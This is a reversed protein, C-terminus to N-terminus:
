LGLQGLVRRLEELNVPKTLQFHFGAEKSRQLDEPRAYGTLSILFTDKLTNDARIVRAVQYGDMGPLGIDCLVVDPRYEKAMKVGKIGDKAVAVEHGDELLLLKMIEAVDDIDEILLVQLKQCQSKSSIEDEKVPFLKASLPLYVSFASGEGLGKSYAEVKGGHLEALGKVLALGLGLGGQSRDLSEDAQMFPKFLSKIMKPRMGIGNDQVRIVAMDKLNDLSLAVRCCGGAKTFKLSNHLLNGLVQSLRVPDAEVYLDMFAPLVELEIGKEHYMEQYDSATRYVLGNLEVPELKLTILNRTIRTVDLLDGVLRSLQDVQRAMIERAQKAKNRDHVTRELLSLGLTISALPNRIEHSLAGLFEDKRLAAERLEENANSLAEEAQRREILDAAQRALVDLSRIESDTLERPQRWHTTIMGLLKGNRSLLPTAQVAHISSQLYMKQDESGAMFICKEVNPVVVRQRTKLARGSASQSLPSVWEWYKAMSDNIGHHRLLYLEGEKGRSPEYMQINAFDSKLIKVATFIIKDYLDEVNDAQIMQTSLEQLLEAAKLEMALQRESEQLAQETQKFRTIDQLAVVAGTITQLADRIPAGSCVITGKSGDFKEIDVVIGKTKRGHLIAQAAPWDKEQLRKGTKPWYGKYKIYDSIGELSAQGAWIRRTEENSLVVKGQDDLVHFGVPITDLITQLRNSEEEARQQLRTSEEVQIQAMKKAEMIAEIRKRETLDTVIACFSGLFDDMQLGILSLQTPIPNGERDIFDLAASRRNNQQSQLLLMLTKRDGSLVWDVLSSGIVRELPSKLMDAFRQNAYLIVGAETLTFAGESMHEILIRFPHDAGKLTFVQEGKDTSIVLADVEGSRIASLIEETEELRARLNANKLQLESIISSELAM